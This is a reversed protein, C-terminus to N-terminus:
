ITIGEADLLLAKARACHVARCTRWDDTIGDHGALVVHLEHLMECLKVQVKKATELKVAYDAAIGEMDMAKIVKKLESM